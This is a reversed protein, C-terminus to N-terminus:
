SNPLEFGVLTVLTKDSLNDATLTYVDTVKVLNDDADYIGVQVKTGATYASNLGIQLSYDASYLVIGANTSVPATADTMVKFTYDGSTASSVGATGDLGVNTLTADFSVSPQTPTQIDEISHIVSKGDSVGDIWVEFSGGEALSEFKVTAVEDDAIPSGGQTEICSQTTLTLTDGSVAWTGTCSVYDENADAIEDYTNNANFTVVTGNASDMTIVKGSFDSTNLTVYTTETESGEGESGEGESGEDDISATLTLNGNVGDEDYNTDIDDLQNQADITLSLNYSGGKAIYDLLSTKVSSVVPAELDGLNELVTLINFEGDTNVLETSLTKTLTTAGMATVLGQANSNLTVVTDTGLKITDGELDVNTVTITLDNSSATNTIKFEVTANSITPNNVTTIDVLFNITSNEDIEPATATAEFGDTIAKYTITKDEDESNGIEMSLSNVIIREVDKVESIVNQIETKILQGLNEDGVEVIIEGDEDAEIKVTAIQELTVASINVGLANGVVTKFNNIATANNENEEDLVANLDVDKVADFGNKAIAVQLLDKVGRNTETDVDVETFDDSTIAQDNNIANQIALTSVINIQKNKFGRLAQNGVKDLLVVNGAKAKAPSVEVLFDETLIGCEKGDIGQMNSTTITFRENVASLVKENTCSTKGEATIKLGDVEIKDVTSFVMKPLTASTGSSSGGGCGVLVAGALLASATISLMTKKM